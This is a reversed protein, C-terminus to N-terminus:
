HCFIKTCKLYVGYVGFIMILGQIFGTLAVAHYGGLILYITTLTAIILFAHNYNIKFVAELFYSLGM